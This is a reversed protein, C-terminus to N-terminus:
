CRVVFCIRICREGRVGIRFRGNGSTALILEQSSVPSFM